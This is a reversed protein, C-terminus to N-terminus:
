SGCGGCGTGGSFCIPPLGHLMKIRFPQAQEGQVLSAPRHVAISCRRVQLSHAASYAARRRATLATLVVGSVLQGPAARARVDPCADVPFQPKGPRHLFIRQVDTRAAGPRGFGPWAAVPTMPFRDRWFPAPSGVVASVLGGVM